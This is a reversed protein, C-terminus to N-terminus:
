CFLLYLWAPLYVTNTHKELQNKTIVLALPPNFERNFKILGKLDSQSVSEKYKVEIPLPIPFLDIVLDVEHDDRWYFISPIMTSELNFKLRRTHDAIVTEAIKGLELPNTLVQPDFLGTYVNRIGIDNVYMKPERRTRKAVSKTYFEAESTLFATKLLYIYENLTKSRHLSLTKAMNQKNFRQSSEKAIMLFLRELAKPDRIQSSRLIDKYLTLEVYQRLNEGCITLDSIPINEPYGGKLFYEDLLIKIENEHPILKIKEEQLAKYFIQPDNNKLSDELAKRLTKNTFQIKEELENKKFRVYELFKMPMVVQNNIRGVLSESTGELIGITSSGSVIFKIKYGRDYWSKLSNQWNKLVQVEDLIIFITDDLSDFSRKLIRTSYTNFIKDLNQVSIHLLPDDLNILLVNEEKTKTLIEEILQYLLTTKGVQRAGILAIIKENSLNKLLKYFDRRKFEKLKSPPIPKKVWWPNTINL